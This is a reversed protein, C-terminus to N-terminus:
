EQGEYGKCGAHMYDAGIRPTVGGNRNVMYECGTAEDIQVEVLPISAKAALWGISVFFFIGFAMFILLGRMKRM